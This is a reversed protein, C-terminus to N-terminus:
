QWNGNYFTLIKTQTTDFYVDGDQPNLPAETSIKSKLLKPIIIKQKILIQDKLKM